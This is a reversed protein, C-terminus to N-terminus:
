KPSSKKDAAYLAMPKNEEEIVLLWITDKIVAKAMLKRNKKPKSDNASILEISNKENM